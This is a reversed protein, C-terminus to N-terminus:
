VPVDDKSDESASVSLNKLGTRHTGCSAARAPHLEGARVGFSTWAMAM